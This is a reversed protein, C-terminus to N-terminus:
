GFDRPSPSTYLLCIDPFYEKKIYKQWQENLEEYDMGLAEEFGKEANQYRKMAQLIEAIKERGYKKAIFRWVSQGGRYALISQLESISPIRENIALDRIIMDVETDWNSSLFEALGENAWLPISLQTRSRVINQIRGGYVMDNIMAHVLEHHLTNRFEQYDGEFPMVVRNKYLETVGLIGEQMYVSVVNNQQFENHSNYIIISVPKKLQWRLHKSIQEYSKISEELTYTALEIQDGYYYVAFNYDPNAIYNWEFDRYQVKNQGFAQAQISSSLALLTYLIYKSM